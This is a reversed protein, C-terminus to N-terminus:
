TYPHKCKIKSAIKFNLDNEQISKNNKKSIKTKHSLKIRSM